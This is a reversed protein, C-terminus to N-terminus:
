HSPTVLDKSPEALGERLAAIAAQLENELATEIFGLAGAHDFGSAICRRYLDALDIM